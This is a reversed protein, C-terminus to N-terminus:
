GTYCHYIIETIVGNEQVIILQETDGGINLPIADLNQYRSPLHKKIKDISEGVRLPSITAWKREFIKVSSLWYIEPRGPDEAIIIEMGEFQYLRYYVPGELYNTTEVTKSDLVKDLKLLENKNPPLDLSLPGALCTFEEVYLPESSIPLQNCSTLALVALTLISHRRKFKETM